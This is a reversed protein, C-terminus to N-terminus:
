VIVFAPEPSLPLGITVIEPRRNPRWQGQRYRNWLRPTVFYHGEDECWNGRIEEDHPDPSLPSAFGPRKTSYRGPTPPAARPTISRPRRFAM